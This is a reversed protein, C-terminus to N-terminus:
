QAAISSDEDPRDAKGGRLSRLAVAAARAAKSTDEADAGRDVDFRSLRPEGQPAAQGVPAPAPGLSPVHEPKGAGKRDPATKETESPAELLGAVPAEEADPAAARRFVLMNQYTTVRGTLGSREECPLTDARVYDWGEAGLENMLGELAHAFRAQTSKLGKAKVGASPAPVVKYEFRTM